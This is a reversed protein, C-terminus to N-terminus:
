SVSSILQDLKEEIRDSRVYLGEALIELHNVRKDLSSINTGITGLRIQIDHIDLRTSALEKRITAHLEPQTITLEM